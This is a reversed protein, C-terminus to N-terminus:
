NLICYMLFFFPSTMILYFVLTLLDTAIDWIIARIPYNKSYAASKESRIEQIYQRLEEVRNSPLQFKNQWLYLDTKLKDKMLMRYGRDLHYEVKGQKYYDTNKPCIRYVEVGFTPHVSHFMYEYENEDLKEYMEEAIGYEELRSKWFYGPNRIRYDGKRPQYHQNELLFLEDTCETLPISIDSIASISVACLSVLLIQKLIMINLTM